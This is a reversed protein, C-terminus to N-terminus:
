TSRAPVGVVTLGAAVNAVVAAGAGVTVDNGISIGHKVCSGIGLWSRAGVTVHGALHAGPCVHVGEDLRCDHDVTAGTNVICGRDLAAGANIAAQAFVVTGSGLSAFSSVAASPHVIVPLEFGLQACRALLDLRVRADGIGVAAAQYTRALMELDASTGARPLNLIRDAEVRDDVFAIQEWRASAVATDALVRGHGGAGIILLSSM